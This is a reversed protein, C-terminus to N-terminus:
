ESATGRNRLGRGGSREKFKQKLVQKEEDSMNRFTQKRQKKFAEKEEPSMNKIENRRTDIHQKREEPTMNKFNELNQAQEPPLEAAIPAPNEPPIAIDDAQATSAVVLCFGAIATMFMQKQMKEEKEHLYLRSEKNKSRPATNGQASKFIFFGSAKDCPM